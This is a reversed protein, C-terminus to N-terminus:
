NSKKQWQAKARAILEEEVAAANSTEVAAGRKDLSRKVAEFDYRRSGPLPGPIVRARRLRALTSADVGLYARLYAASVLRGATMPM